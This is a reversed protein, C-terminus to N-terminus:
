PVKERRQRGKKWSGAFHKGEVQILGCTNFHTPKNQFTNWAVTEDPEVQYRKEPPKAKFRARRCSGINAGTSEGNAILEAGIVVGASSCTETKFEYHCRRTKEGEEEGKM